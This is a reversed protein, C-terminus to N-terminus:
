KFVEISEKEPNFNILHKIPKTMVSLLFSILTCGFASSILVQIPIFEALAGGLAFAVAMLGGAITGVLSFVKGRMNQPVAVSFTAMIFSNLIANSVGLIIGFGIMLPFYLWIPMLMSSVMSLIGCAAFFKFRYSYKFHIISTMLYGAFMSGTIVAMLIGYLAPGLHPTQNFLPLFLMIGMVAFFNLTAASFLLFRIGRYQWVFKLGDKLDIFFHFDPHAHVVKPIKIFIETIASFLYSIGNILFMLPAGLVQFLVGGLANGIIGSGTGIMSFASNAKILKDTPVIDPVASSVAPNFFAAGISIIIGAIFVMWVELMNAYAAIAVLVIFIGRIADMLVLLWKRDSRDVLVGAFPSIVIRPLSSVAMLSGMIATSGTKNLIWFGLAIAYIADGILSVLQGQWLLFFNFNWLKKVVVSHVVGTPENDM